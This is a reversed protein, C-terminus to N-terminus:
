VGGDVYGWIAGYPGVEVGLGCVAMIVEVVLGGVWDVHFSRVGIALQESDSSDASVIFVEDM